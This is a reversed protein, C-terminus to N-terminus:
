RFSLQDDALGIHVTDGAHFTGNLLLVALRDGLERQIVPRLPILAWLAAMM